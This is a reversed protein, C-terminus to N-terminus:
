RSAEHQSNIYKVLDQAAEGDHLNTIEWKDVDMTSILGNAVIRGKLILLLHENAHDRSWQYYRSRGEPTLTLWLSYTKGGMVMEPHEEVWGSSFHRSVLVVPCAAVLVEPPVALGHEVEHESGSSGESAEHSEGEKGSQGEETLYDLLDRLSKARPTLRHHKSEREAKESRTMPLSTMVTYDDRFGDFAHPDHMEYRVEAGLFPTLMAYGTESDLGIVNRIATGVKDSFLKGHEANFISEWGFNTIEARTAGESQVIKFLNRDYSGRRDLTGVVTLGSPEPSLAPWKHRLLYFDWVRLGAFWLTLVIIFGLVLKRTGTERTVGRLRSAEEEPLVDERPFLAM